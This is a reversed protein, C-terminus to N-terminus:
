PLGRHNRKVGFDMLESSNDLELEVRGYMFWAIHCAGSVSLGRQYQPGYANINIRTEYVLKYVMYVM